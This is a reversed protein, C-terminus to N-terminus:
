QVDADYDDQIDKWKKRLNELKPGITSIKSDKVVDILAITEGTSLEIGSMELTQVPDNVLDDFFQRDKRAIELVFDVKMLMAAVLM